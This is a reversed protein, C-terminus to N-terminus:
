SVAGVVAPPSGHRLANPEPVVLVFHDLMPGLHLDTARDRIDADVRPSPDIGADAVRAIIARDAVNQAANPVDQYEVPIPVGRAAALARYAEVIRLPIFLGPIAPGDHIRRLSDAVRALTESERVGAESVPSGEIFRTVLYGEPRIFAVVEPGVGVGAAFALFAGSLLFVASVVDALTDWFSTAPDM